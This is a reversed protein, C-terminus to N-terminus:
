KNEKTMSARYRKSTEWKRIASSVAGNTRQTTEPYELWLQYSIAAYNTKGANTGERFTFAPKMLSLQYAREAESPRSDTPDMELIDLRTIWTIKGNNSRAKRGGSSRFTDCIEKRDAERPMIGEFSEVNASGDYGWLAYSIARDARTPCCKYEAALGLEEVIERTSRRKVLHMESIGPHEIQIQLGLEATREIRSLRRNAM